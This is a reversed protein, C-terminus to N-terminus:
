IFAGLLPVQVSPHSPRFVQACLGLHRGLGSERHGLEPCGQGAHWHPTMLVRCWTLTDCPQLHLRAEGRPLHGAEAPSVSCTSLSEIGARKYLQM